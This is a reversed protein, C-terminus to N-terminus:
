SAGGVRSQLLRVDFRDEGSGGGGVWGLGGGVAGMVAAKCDCRRRELWLGTEQRTWSEEMM